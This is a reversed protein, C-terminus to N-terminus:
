PNWRLKWDFVVRKKGRIINGIAYARYGKSKLHAEIERAREAKAVAIMGVGLNFTKLMDEDSVPGKERILSFIAPIQILSLDIKADVGGPLIRSLNGAIGGGTIHALGHLGKNGFLGKLGHYYCLHPLLIAELFSKGKVNEKELGPNRDLLARILSYGNTHVGNSAIAIVEDGEMITSGDIIDEKDVVGVISSTLIYVGPEIVGPQESTEGGTLVCGQAKCAKAIGDVIRTIKEKELKGCVICDQVTLPTAGMVAIDNILHNVMDACVSEIKGHSFALKQKSGPEETKMVLVPHAIGPFKGDFLSAFAGVRNLVRKNATKLIKAMELKTEDAVDINVGAKEYSMGKTKKAM